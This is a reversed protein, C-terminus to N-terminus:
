VEVGSITSYVDMASKDLNTRIIRLKAGTVNVDSLTFQGLYIDINPTSTSNFAVFKSVFVTGNTSVQVEIKIKGSASAWFKEAKFTKSATISYDHNSTAAAALSSVTNYDHVESGPTGAAIQVPLPNAATYLSGAGDRLAVDLPRTGGAAASTLGNGANDQLQSKVISANTLPAIILRGSSDVQFATQQGTTLTPLSSNYVGGSLVSQTGATGGSASGFASSTMLWPSVGGVGQDVKGITNTGAPTPSNPSLAVVLAAQTAGAATSAAALTIDNTGDTLRAWWYGAHTVAASGQNATVVDTATLTRIARPDVQVGAVNIGVDLARQAGNVQSTVANGAGDQMKTTIRGSADVALQQSPTTADAIKAVVDGPLETRVPLSSNFDSM